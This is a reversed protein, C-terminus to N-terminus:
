SSIAVHARVPEAMTKTPDKAHVAIKKVYPACRSRVISAASLPAGAGFGASATPLQTRSGMLAAKATPVAIPSIAGRLRPSKETPPLDGSLIIPPVTSNSAIHITCAVDIPGFGSMWSCDGHSGVDGCRRSTGGAAWSRVYADLDSNSKYRAAGGASLPFAALAALPALERAM